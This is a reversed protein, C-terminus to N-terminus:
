GIREAALRLDARIAAPTVYRLLWGAPTLLRPFTFDGIAKVLTGSEHPRLQVILRAKISRWEGEEIWLTPSVCDTVRLRPRIGPKTVDTWTTGVDGNGVVDTVARLSSQWEPRNRPDKLYDFVV